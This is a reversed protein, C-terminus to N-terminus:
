YGWSREDAADKSRLDADIYTPNQESEAMSDLLEKWSEYRFTISGDPNKITKMKTKEKTAPIRNDMSTHAPILLMGM